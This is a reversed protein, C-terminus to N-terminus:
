SFVLFSMLRILNLFIALDTLYKNGSRKGISIQVIKSIMTLRIDDLCFFLSVQMNNDDSDMYDARKRVSLPCPDKLLEIKSM